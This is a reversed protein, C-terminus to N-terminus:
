RGPYEWVNTRYRGSEGLGFTNILAAEGVKYVFVLEHQSRYFTGMGGNAKKWVALNKLETYFQVGAAQVERMHRWDMCVFYIAGNRSVDAMAGLAAALFDTFTQADMEGSAM